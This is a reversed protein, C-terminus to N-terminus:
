HNNFLAHDKLWRDGLFADRGHLIKKDNFILLDGRSWIKSFDYICGAMIVDELFRFFEERIKMVNTSNYKSKIQWYNWNISDGSLIPKRHIEEGEAGIYSWTVEVNLKKLLKPNYKELINILKKASLFRTTGGLESPELCYMLVWDPSKQSPFYAYDTHLPQRTRAAFFHYLKPDPRIDRSESFVKTKDNVPRCAEIKGLSKALSEYFSIYDTEDVNNIHYILFNGWSAKLSNTIYDLGKKGDVELIVNNLNSIM